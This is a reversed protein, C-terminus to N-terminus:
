SLMLSIIPRLDQKIDFLETKILDTLYLFAEFNSECVLSNNTIHFMQESTQNTRESIIIQQATGKWYWLCFSVPKNGTRKIRRIDQKAM